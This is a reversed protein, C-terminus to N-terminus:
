ADETEDVPMPQLQLSVMSSFENFLTYISEQVAMSTPNYANNSFLESQKM